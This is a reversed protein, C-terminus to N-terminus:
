EPRRPSYRTYITRGNCVLAALKVGSAALWQDLHRALAPVSEMREPDVGLWIRAGQDSWDVHVRVPPALENSNPFKAPAARGIHAPPEKANGAIRGQPPLTTAEASLPATNVASTFLPMEPL